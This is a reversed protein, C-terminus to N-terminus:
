IIQYDGDEPEDYTASVVDVVGHLGRAEEVAGACTVGYLKVVETHTKLVTVYVPVSAGM